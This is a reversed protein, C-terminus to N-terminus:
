YSVSPLMPNPAARLCRSVFTNEPEQSPKKLRLPEGIINVHQISISDLPFSFLLFLLLHSLEDHRPTKQM